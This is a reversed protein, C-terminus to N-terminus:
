RHIYHLIIYTIYCLTHTHKDDWGVHKDDWTIVLGCPSHTRTLTHKLFIIHIDFCINIEFVKQHM